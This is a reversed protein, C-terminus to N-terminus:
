LVYGFGLITFQKDKSDETVQVRITHEKSEKENFVIAANCHLWNNIHPDATITKTGDVLVDAKGVNVEGSDKYILLLAKCKMRLEFYAQDSRTGDYMWNYPFEPTQELDLNMEVSQLETDTMVFGGEDIAAELFTDKKDMLKVKDFDCGIAPSQQLLQSLVEEETLGMAFSDIRAHEATDCSDFLHFLCDAMITHGLNTPHFIDYFYQNKTLVRGEGKKKSFQPTVADKLSVMPLDYHEGVPKLREQLNYDDAFVSFLLIVAPKSPLNLVKKVLSEYCNGKTEDGEDNVAFEIVVIDPQEGDRLVDRDFRLMGLESPTGGVGAKIYKVNDGAAYEKCFRQYTKYAYCETNIPIAGAGQTISGGIFAFTVDKGARAKAIAKRIRYANGLNMLSRQIMEKYEESEMDVPEEQADEPATFGENLYFRVSANGLIEPKDFEFRIQGPEVDDSSWETDELYVRQEMGDGRVNTILNTGGGYLDTKGYMQFVFKVKQMPEETVVSVGVSHVMKRFGDVTKLLELEKEDEINGVIKASNILRGDNEYIFQIGEGNPQPSGFVEKEKMIYFYPRSKEPDKPAAPGTM